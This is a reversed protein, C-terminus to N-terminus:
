SRWMNLDNQVHVFVIFSKTFYSDQTSKWESFFIPANTQFQTSVCRVVATCKAIFLRTCSHWGKLGFKKTLKGGACTLVFVVVFTTTPRTAEPHNFNISSNQHFKSFPGLIRFNCRCKFLCMCCAFNHNRHNTSFKGTIHPRTILASNYVRRQGAFQVPLRKFLREWSVWVSRANRRCLKQFQTLCIPSRRVNKEVSYSVQYKHQPAGHICACPVCLRMTSKYVCSPWWLDLSGTKLEMYAFTRQIELWCSSQWQTWRFFIRCWWTWFCFRLLNTNDSINGSWGM